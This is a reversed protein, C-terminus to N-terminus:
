GESQEMRVEMWRTAAMTRGEDREYGATASRRARPTSIRLPSRLSPRSLRLCVRAPTSMRTLATTAHTMRSCRSMMRAAFSTPTCRTTGHSKPVGPAFPTRASKSSTLQM